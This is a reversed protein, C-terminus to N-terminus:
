EVSELSWGLRGVARALARGTRREPALELTRLADALSRARSELRVRGAGTRDGELLIVDVTRRRRRRCLLHVLEDYGARPASDPGDTAALPRPPLRYPRDSMTEVGVRLFIPGDLGRLVSRYADFLRHSAEPPLFAVPVGGCTLVAVRRGDALVGVRGAEDRRRPRRPARSSARRRRQWQFWRAAHEDLPRGDPAYATLLFGVGLCPLGVLPSILSALALAAGVYGVFTLAARGSPFPGMRMPRGLPAPMPVAPGDALASM